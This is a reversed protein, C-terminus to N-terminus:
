KGKRRQFLFMLGIVAIVPIAVTPFEPIGSTQGINIGGPDKIIGNAQGDTDFAGGDTLTIAMKKGDILVPTITRWTNDQYKLYTTWSPLVNDEPATWTLTVSSKEPINTIYFSFFGFPLNSDIPLPPLNVQELNEITGIDTELGVIKNTIVATDSDGESTVITVSEGGDATVVTVTDGETASGSTVPILEDVWSDQGGSKVIINVKGTGFGSGLITLVGGRLIQSNITVGTLTASKIVPKANVPVAFVIIIIVAILITSLNMKKM